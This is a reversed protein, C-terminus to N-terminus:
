QGRVVKAIIEAARTLESELVDMFQAKGEEGGQVVLGSIQVLPGMIQIGTGSGSTGTSAGNAGATPTPVLSSAAARQVRDASDELGVIVGDGLDGGFKAMKRSPSHTDSATRAGTEAANAVNAGAATVDPVTSNLGEVIGNGLDVGIQKGAEAAGAGVDNAVGDTVETAGSDTNGGSGAGGMGGNDGIGSGAREGNDGGNGGDNGGSAGGSYDPTPGDKGDGAIWEMLDKLQGALWVAGKLEEGIIIFPLTALDAALGIGDVGDAAQILPFVIDEESEVLDLVASEAEYFKGELKIIGLIAGKAFGTLYPEAKELGKFMGNFMGTLQKQLAKGAVTGTTFNNTFKSFARVVPSPDVGVFMNKFNMSARSAVAGLQAMGRTGMALPVMGAIAAAGAAAAALHVAGVAGAVALAGKAAMFTGQAAIYTGKASTSALKKSGTVSKALGSLKKGIETSKAAEALGERIGSKDAGKAAGKEGDKKSKSAVGDRAAKEQALRMAEAERIAAAAGKGQEEAARKAGDLWKSSSAGAKRETKELAFGAEEAATKMERLAAAAGDAPGIIDDTDLRASFEM